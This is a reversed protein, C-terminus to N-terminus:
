PGADPPLAAQLVARFDELALAGEIRRGNVLFTPATRVHLDRALRRLQGVTEATRPDRFCATFRAADLGIEKAFVVFRQDPRRVRVWEHRRAFLAEHMPAARGQQAACTVASAADLSHPTSGTAFPVPRWEVRGTAVFERDIVPQVSRAFEGCHGCGYDFFEVVVVPAAVGPRTVIGTGPAQAPPEAKPGACATVMLLAAAGLRTLM